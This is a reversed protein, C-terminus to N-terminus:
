FIREINKLYKGITIDSNVVEANIVDGNVPVLGSRQTINTRGRM